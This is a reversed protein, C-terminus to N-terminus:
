SIPEEEGYVIDALEIICGKLLENLDEQEKIKEKLEEAEKRKRALEKISDKRHKIM